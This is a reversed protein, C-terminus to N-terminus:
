DAGVLPFLRPSCLLSPMSGTLQAGSCSAHCLPCDHAPLWGLPHHGWQGWRVTVCRPNGARGVGAPEQGAACGTAWRIHGACRPGAGGPPLPAAAAAHRPEGDGAAVGWPALALTQAQGQLRCIVGDLARSCDSLLQWICSLCGDRATAMVRQDGIHWAVLTRNGDGLLLGLLVTFCLEGMMDGNRAGNEARVAVSYSEHGERSMIRRYAPTLLMSAQAGDAQLFAMQDQATVVM